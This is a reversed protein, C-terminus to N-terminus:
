IELNQIIGMLLRDLPQKACFDLTSSANLDRGFLISFFHTGTRKNEDVEMPRSLSPGASEKRTHAYGRTELRRQIRSRAVSFSLRQRGRDPHVALHQARAIGYCHPLVKARERERENFDTTVKSGLALATTNLCVTM